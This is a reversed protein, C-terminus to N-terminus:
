DLEKIIWVTNREKGVRKSEIVYNFKNKMLWENIPKVTKRLTGDKGRVNLKEILTQRQEKNM